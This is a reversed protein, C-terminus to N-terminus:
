KNAKPELAMSSLFLLSLINILKGILLFVITNALYKDTITIAAKAM